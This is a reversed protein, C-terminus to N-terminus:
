RRVIVVRCRRKYAATLDNGRRLFLPERPLPMIWPKRALGDIVTEGLCENLRGLEIRDDKIVARQQREIPDDLVGHRDRRPSTLREGGGAAGQEPLLREEPVIEFRNEALHRTQEDRRVVHRVGGAREVGRREIGRGNEGDVSHALPRRTREAGAFTEPDFEDVLQVIRM